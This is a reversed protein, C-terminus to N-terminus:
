LSPSLLLRDIGGLMRLRIQPDRASLMAVLRPLDERVQFGGERIPAGSNRDSFQDVGRDREIAVPAFLLLAVREPGGVREFSVAPEPDGLLHRLQQRDAT